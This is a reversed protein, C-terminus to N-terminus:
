PPLAPEFGTPAVVSCWMPIRPRHEDLRAQLAMLEIQEGEGLQETLTIGGNCAIVLTVAQAEGRGVPEKVIARPQGVGRRHQQAPGVAHGPCEAAVKPRDAQGPAEAIPGTPLVLDNQRIRGLYASAGVGDRYRHAPLLRRRVM